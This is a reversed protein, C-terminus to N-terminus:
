LDTDGHENWKIKRCQWRNRQVSPWLHLTQIELNYMATSVLNWASNHSFVSSKCGKELDISELIWQANTYGHASEKNIWGTIMFQFSSYLCLLILRLPISVIGDWLIMYFALIIVNTSSITVLFQHRVIHAFIFWLCWM